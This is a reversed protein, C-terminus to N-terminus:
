PQAGPNTTPSHASHLAQSASNQLNPHNYHDRVQTQQFLQATYNLHFDASDSTWLPRNGPNLEAFHTPDHSMAEQLRPKISLAATSFILEGQNNGQQHTAQSDFAARSGKVGGELLVQSLDENASGQPATLRWPPSAADRAQLLFDPDSFRYGQDGTLHRLTRGSLTWVLAGQVSFERATFDTFRQDFEAPRLSATPSQSLFNKWLLGGLLAFLLAAIGFQGLTNAPM